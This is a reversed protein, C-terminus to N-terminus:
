WPVDQQDPHSMTSMVSASHKVYCMDLLTPPQAHSLERTVPLPVQLTVIPRAPKGGRRHPYISFCWRSSGEKRVRLVDTLLCVHSRTREISVQCGQHIVSQGEQKHEQYRSSAVLVWAQSKVGWFYRPKPTQQHQVSSSSMRCCHQACLMNTNEAWWRPASHQWSQERYSQSGGPAMSRRQVKVELPFCIADSSPYSLLTFVAGLVVPLWHSVMAKGAASLASLADVRSTLPCLLNPPGM